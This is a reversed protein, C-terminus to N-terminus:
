ARFRSLNRPRLASSSIFSRALIYGRPNIEQDRNRAEIELVSKFSAVFTMVAGAGATIVFIIVRLAFLIRKHFRIISPTTITRKLNNM